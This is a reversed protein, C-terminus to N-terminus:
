VPSVSPAKLYLSYPWLESIFFFFFFFLPVLSLLCTHYRFSLPIWYLRSHLMRPLAFLKLGTELIHLSHRRSFYQIRYLGSNAVKFELSSNKAGQLCLHFCTSFFPHFCYNTKKLFVKVKVLM